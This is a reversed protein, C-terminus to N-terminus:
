KEFSTDVQRMGHQSARRMAWICLDIDNKLPRNVHIHEDLRDVSYACKELNRAFAALPRYICTMHRTRKIHRLLNRKTVSKHSKLRQLESIYKQVKNTPLSLWQRKTDFIKGLWQQTQSPRHVKSQKTELSVRKLVSESHRFQEWAGSETAQSGLVDGLYYLLTGLSITNENRM